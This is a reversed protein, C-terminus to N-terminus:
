RPKPAPAASPTASLAGGLHVFELVREGGVSLFSQVEDLGDEAVVRLDGDVPHAFDRIAELLARLHRRERVRFPFAGPLSPDFCAYGVVRGDDDRAVVQTRADLARYEALWAATIGFAASIDADDAATAQTVICPPSPPLRAVDGWDLRFASARTRVRLGMHEYFALTAAHQPRLNLCWTHCGLARFRDAVAHMLTRGLGVRRCSRTVVLQRVYGIRSFVEGFLYGVVAGDREIVLTGPRLEERWRAPPLPADDPAYEPLLRAYAEYDDDRAPRPTPSM